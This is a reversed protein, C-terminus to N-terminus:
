GKIPSNKDDSIMIHEKVTVVYEGPKFYCKVIPHITTQMHDLHKYQPKDQFINMYNQGFDLVQLLYGPKLNDRVYQFMAYNWNAAFIHQSMSVLDTLFSDLLEKQTGDYTKLILKKAKSRPFKEVWIWRTWQIINKNEELWPNAEM